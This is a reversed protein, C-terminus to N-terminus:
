PNPGYLKMCYRMKLSPRQSTLDPIKFDNGSGGFRYGILNFLDNNYSYSKSKSQGNCSYTNKPVFSFAYLEIAGKFNGTETGDITPYTGQVAIYYSVGNVPNKSTLDPLKFYGSPATGYNSGILAYLSSYETSSLNAGNCLKWGEGNVAAVSDPLLCVEGLLPYSSDMGILNNIAIYYKTGELPVHARLDPLNFSTDNGGFTNGIMSYLVMYETVSLARGDCEMWGTPESNYPFLGIQGLVPDTADGAARVEQRESFTHGVIIIMTLIVVWITRLLNNKKM